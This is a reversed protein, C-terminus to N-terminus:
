SDEMCGNMAHDGAISRRSETPRQEDTAEIICIAPDGHMEKVVMSFGGNKEVKYAPSHDCCGAKVARMSGARPVYGHPSLDAGGQRDTARQVIINDASHTIDFSPLM